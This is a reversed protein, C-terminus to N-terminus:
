EFDNFEDSKWTIFESVDVGTVYGDAEDEVRTTNSFDIEGMQYNGGTQRVKYGFGDDFAWFACSATAHVEPDIGGVCAAIQEKSLAENWVGLNWLRGHFENGERSAEVWSSNFEIAQFKSPTARYKSVVTRSLRQQAVQTGNIYMTLTGSSSSSGNYVLAAQYWKGAELAGSYLKYRTASSPGVWWELQKEKEGIRLMNIWNEDADAFDGIRMKGNASFDDIFFHFIYTYKHASFTFPEAFKYWTAMRPDGLYLVSTYTMPGEFVAVDFILYTVGSNESIQAFGADSLVIPVIYGQESTLKVQDEKSFTVVASASRSGKAMLASKITPLVGEPLPLYNTGNAENYAAILSNDIAFEVDFEILANETASVTITKELVKSKTGDDYHKISASAKSSSATVVNTTPDVDSEGTKAMMYCANSNTSVNVGSASAIRLVVQYKEATLKSLDALDVSMVATVSKQGAPIKVTKPFKVTGEPFANYENTLASNDLALTLEVDHALPKTLALEVDRKVNGFSGSPTHYVERTPAVYEAQTGDVIYALSGVVGQVDALEEQCAAFGLTAAALILM